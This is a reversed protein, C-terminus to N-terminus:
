AFGNVAAIIPKPSDEITMTVEQGLKGFDLAGKNDLRQMAKIDAGSIFAKGGAGTLIIVGVQKGAIMSKISQDLELLVDPNMANLADQRDITLLGIQDKVEKIIFM